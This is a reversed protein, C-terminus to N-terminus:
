AALPLELQEVAERLRNPALHAYRETERVSAHGLLDRVETLPVGSSVLWSAFTHRLDHIRFDDIGARKKATQFQEYLRTVRRGDPWAFVWRSRPCHEMRFAQRERLADQAHRNLPIFRRKGSKTHQGDLQIRRQEIDVRHWELGLMENLRMGTNLALNIFSGLCHNLGAEACMVLRQAEDRTLWRLRGEPMKLSMNRTPNPLPWEWHKIAYNIAASLIDIERNITGNARGVKRRSQIYSSIDLRRLTTMDRGAFHRHLAVEACEIRKISKLDGRVADLYESFLHEFAYEM